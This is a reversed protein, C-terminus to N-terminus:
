FLVLFFWPQKWKKVSFRIYGMNHM